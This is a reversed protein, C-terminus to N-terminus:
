LNEEKDEFVKKTKKSTFGYEHNIKEINLFKNYINNPFTDIMVNNKNAITMCEKELNYYAERQTQVFDSLDSYFASFQDYPIQQNERVMKWSVNTGDSRGNMIIKTVEIFTSKNLDAVQNKQLYTKWLKDYFGLREETKQKFNNKYSISTNHLTIVDNAINSGLNYGGIALIILIFITLYKKKNVKVEKNEDFGEYESLIIPISTISGFVILSIIANTLFHIPGFNLQGNALLSDGPFKFTWLIAILYSLIAAISLLGFSVNTKTIKM